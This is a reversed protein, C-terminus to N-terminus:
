DKPYVEGVPNDLVLYDFGSNTRRPFQHYPRELLLRHESRVSDQDMGIHAAM